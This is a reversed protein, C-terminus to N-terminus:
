IGSQWGQVRVAAPTHVPPDLAVNEHGPVLAILTPDGSIGGVGGEVSM